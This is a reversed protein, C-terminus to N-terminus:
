VAHCHGHSPRWNAYTPRNKRWKHVLTYRTVNRCIYLSVSYNVIGTKSYRYGTADCLCFRFITIIFDLSQTWQLSCHSGWMVFIQYVKTWLRIFIPGYNQGVWPWIKNNGYALNDPTWLNSRGIMWHLMWGDNKSILIRFKALRKTCRPKFQRQKYPFRRKTWVLIKWTIQGLMHM